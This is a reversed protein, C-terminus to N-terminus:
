GRIGVVRARQDGGGGRELRPNVERGAERLVNNVANVEYGDAGLALGREVAIGIILLTPAEAGPRVAVERIRDDDDALQSGGPADHDALPQGIPQREGHRRLSGTTTVNPAAPQDDSAVANARPRKALTM